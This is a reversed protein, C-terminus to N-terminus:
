NNPRPDWSLWDSGTNNPDKELEFVPDIVNTKENNCSLFIVGFFVLMALTNKKM